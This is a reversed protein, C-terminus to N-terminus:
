KFMAQVRAELDRVSGLARERAYLVPCQINRCAGTGSRGADAFGGTCARCVELAGTLQVQAGRLSGVVEASKSQLDEACQPCLSPAAGAAAGMRSPKSSPLAAGCCACKASFFAADLTGQADGRSGEPPPLACVSRPLSPMSDYWAWVNVGMPGLVRELAPLVQKRMYYEVDIRPASALPFLVELPTKARATLAVGDAATTIVFAQRAKYPLTAGPDGLALRSAVHSAPTVAADSKYSKRPKAEKQFV